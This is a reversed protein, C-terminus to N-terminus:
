RDLVVLLSNLTRTEPGPLQYPFFETASKKYHSLGILNLILRLRYM